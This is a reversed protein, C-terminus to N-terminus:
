KLENEIDLIFEPLNTFTVIHGKRSLRIISKAKKMIDEQIHIPVKVDEGKKIYKAQVYKDMTPFMNQLLFVTKKGAINNFFVFNNPEKMIKQKISFYIDIYKDYKTSMPVFWLMGDIQDDKFCFYCPRNSDEEHNKMLHYKKGYKDIFEDKIFYIKGSEIIM